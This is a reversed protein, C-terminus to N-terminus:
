IHLFVGVEELAVDAQLADFSGPHARLAGLEGAEFAESDPHLVVATLAGM